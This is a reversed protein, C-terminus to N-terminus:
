NISINAGDFLNIFGGIVIQDGDNLGSGIYAKDQVRKAISIPHIKAKGDTILYVKPDRDSGVIASAPISFMGKANAKEMKIKGFMKSKINSKDADSVSLIIPFSNGMNGKSGVSIVKGILKEDPRSDAFISYSDGEQFLALDNESVNTTFRLNSIDTLIVLPMGPAAFSGVESMKMTVVGGFPARVTTKSIKEVITSRQVKASKLGLLTKELKVGQIADADTLIQYRKIDNELGEIQVDITKLQLKLLSDDIKVLTQGKKVESGQDVYFHTIKGQVDANIKSEKEAEFTGTFSYEINGTTPHLELTNVAIPKEKDYQYVRNEVVSKNSKLQVVVVAILAVLILINIIKTM